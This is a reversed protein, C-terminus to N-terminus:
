TPSPVHGGLQRGEGCIARKSGFSGRCTPVKRQPFIGLVVSSKAICKAKAKLQHRPCSTAHTAPSTPLQYRKCSTNAPADGKRPAHPYELHKLTTKKHALNINEHVSFQLKRTHWNKTQFHPQSGIQCAWISDRHFLKCVCDKRAGGLRPLDPVMKCPPPLHPV